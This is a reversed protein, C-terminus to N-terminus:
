PQGSSPTYRYSAAAYQGLASSVNWYIEKGDEPMHESTVRIFDKGDRFKCVFYYGTMGPLNATENWTKMGSERIVKMVKDYAEKPVLYQTRTENPTGGNSYTELLLHAADYEYLVIESYPQEEPTGVTREFCDILLSGPTLGEEAAAEVADPIDAEEAPIGTEIEGKWDIIGGFEYVHTYGMRGLKEAAEKSRRGSRCYILLTQEPDPLAEPMTDAITENPVCIAGPIHGEEYEELTRVDVLLYNLDAQQMMAAAEEQSIQVYAMGQPGDTPQTGCGSFLTLTFILTLLKEM